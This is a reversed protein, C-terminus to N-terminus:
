TRWFIILEKVSKLQLPDLAMVGIQYEGLAEFIGLIKHSWLDYSDSAKLVDINDSKANPTVTVAL